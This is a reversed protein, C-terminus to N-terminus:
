NKSGEFTWFNPFILTWVICLFNVKKLNKKLNLFKTNKELITYISENASNSVCSAFTKKHDPPFISFSLLLQLILLRERHFRKCWQYFDCPFLKNKSYRSSSMIRSLPLASVRSKGSLDYIWHKTNSDLKETKASAM